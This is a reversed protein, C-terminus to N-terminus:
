IPFPPIPSFYIYYACASIGFIRINHFPYINPIQFLSFLVILASNFSFDLYFIISYIM